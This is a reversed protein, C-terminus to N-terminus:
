HTPTTRLAVKPVLSLEIYNTGPIKLNCTFKLWGVFASKQQTDLM